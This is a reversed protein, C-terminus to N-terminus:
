SPLPKTFALFPLTAPDADVDFLPEYGTNLYLHRAEPQRPGTTLYVKAYGQATAADELEALVLRGLGRRRHDSHTWIRKFEATDASYRRFAGGAVSQGHEQLILLAGGPAAFERAPYKNLEKVASGAGFLGAYRTEYELALEDLLPRVRPDDMPLSLVTVDAASAPVPRALAGPIRAVTELTM